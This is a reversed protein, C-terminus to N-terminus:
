GTQDVLLVVLDKFDKSARLKSQVEKLDKSKMTKCCARTGVDFIRGTIVDLKLGKDYDHGHLSSPWDDADNKYFKWIYGSRKVQKEALFRLVDFEQDISEGSSEITLLSDQLEDVSILSLGYSLYSLPVAWDDGSEYEINLSVTTQGNSSRFEGIDDGKYTIKGSKIDCVLAM